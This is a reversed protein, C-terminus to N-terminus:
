YSFLMNVDLKILEYSDNILIRNENYIERLLLIMKQGKNNYHNIFNEIFKDIDIRDNYINSITKINIKILNFLYKEFDDIFCLEILDNFSLYYYDKNCYNDLILYFTMKIFKNIEIIAEYIEDFLQNKRKINNFLLNTDYLKDNIKVIDKISLNRYNNNKDIFSLNYTLDTSVNTKTINHNCMNIVDDFNFKTISNYFDGIGSTIVIKDDEKYIGITFMLSFKYEMREDIILFPDSFLFTINENENKLLYFYTMYIFGSNGYPSSGRHYIYEDGYKAIMIEHIIQQVMFINSNENYHNKEKSYEEKKTKIKIHGAGLYCNDDIKILNTGFSFMPSDNTGVGLIGSSLYKIIQQQGSIYLFDSNKDSTEEFIEGNEEFIEGNSLVNLSEKKYYEFWFLYKSYLFNNEDYKYDYLPINRFKGLPTFGSYVKNIKLTYDDLINFKLIIELDSSTLFFDNDIKCIRMDDAGFIIQLKKDSINCLNKIENKYNTLHFIKIINDNEDTLLIINDHFEKNSDNNSWNNWIFNKGICKYKIPFKQYPCNNVHGPIMIEENKDPIIFRICSIKYGNEINISCMNFGSYNEYFKVYNHSIINFSM